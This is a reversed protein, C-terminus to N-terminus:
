APTRRREWSNGSTDDVLWWRGRLRGDLRMGIAVAVFSQAATLPEAHAFALTGAALCALVAATYFRDYHPM